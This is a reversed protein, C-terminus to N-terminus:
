WNTRTRMTKNRWQMVRSVFGVRQSMKASWLRGKCDPHRSWLSQLVLMTVSVILRIVQCKFMWSCVSTTTPNGLSVESILDQVLAESITGLFNALELALLDGNDKFDSTSLRNPRSLEWRQPDGLRRTVLPPWASLTMSQPCSLRLNSDGVGILDWVDWGEPSRPEKESFHCVSSIWELLFYFSLFLFGM